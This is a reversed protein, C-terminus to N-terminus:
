AGVCCHKNRGEESDAIPLTEAFIITLFHANRGVLSCVIGQRIWLAVHNGTGVLPPM